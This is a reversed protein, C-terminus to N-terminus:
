IMMRFNNFNNNYNIQERELKLKMENRIYCNVADFGHYHSRQELSEPLM